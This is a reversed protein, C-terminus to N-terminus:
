RAGRVMGLLLDKLRQVFDARPGCRYEFTSDSMGPASDTRAIEIEECGLHEVLVERQSVESWIKERQEETLDLGALSALDVDLGEILSGTFILDDEPVQAQRSAEERTLPKILEGTREDRVLLDELVGLVCDGGDDNQVSVNRDRIRWMVDFNTGEYFGTETRELEGGRCIDIWEQTTLQLESEADDNGWVAILTIARDPKSRPKSAM